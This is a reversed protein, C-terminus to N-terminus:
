ATDHDEPATQGLHCSDPDLPLLQIVEFRSPTESVRPHGASAPAPERYAPPYGRQDYSWSAHPRLEAAPAVYAQHGMPPAGYAHSGYSPPYGHPQTERIARLESRLHYVEQRLTSVKALPREATLVTMSIVSGMGSARSRLASTRRLGGAERLPRRRSKKVPGSRIGGSGHPAHEGPAACEHSAGAGQSTARIGRMVSSTPALPGAGPQSGSPQRSRPGSAVAAEYTTRPKKAVRRPITAKTYAGYGREDRASGGWALSDSLSSTPSNLASNVSTWSLPCPLNRKSNIWSKANTDKNLSGRGFSRSPKLTALPGKPNSGHTVGSPTTTEPKKRLSTFEKLPIRHPALLVCRAAEINEQFLPENMVFEREFAGRSTYGGVLGRPDQLKELFSAAGTGEDPPYYGRPYAKGGATQTSQVPVPAQASPLNSSQLQAAHHRQTTCM